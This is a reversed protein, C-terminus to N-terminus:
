ECERGCFYNAQQQVCVCVFFSAVWVHCVCALLFFFNRIWNNNTDKKEKKKFIPRARTGVSSNVPKNNRDAGGV